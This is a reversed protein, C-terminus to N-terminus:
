DFTIEGDINEWDTVEFEVDGSKENYTVNVLIDIFDNRKIGTMPIAAGSEKDITKIPIKEEHTIDSTVERKGVKYLYLNHLETNDKSSSGYVSSGYVTMYYSKRTGQLRIYNGSNSATFYDESGLDVTLPLYKSSINSSQMYYGTEGMSEIYYRNTGASKLKWVYNNNLRGGTLYSSGAGVYNGNAYLYRRSDTFYIVYLAGDEIGSASNIAKNEVFYEETKAGEYKLGITYNYSGGTSELLYTDFVTAEGVNGSTDLKPIMMEQEFPTIAGASTVVPSVSATGGEDFLDASQQTFKTDFSLGTIYLDSLSSHNRVNIRLRAYTRLLEGNVINKGPTLNIEKKLSLPYPTSSDCINEESATVKLGSTINEGDAESLNGTLGNYNGYNAVAYLLYSRTYDLNTFSVTAETNENSFRPDDSELVTSSAVRNGDLLMVTLRYMKRGDVILEQESVTGNDDLDEVGRTSQVSGKSTINIYLTTDSATHLSEDNSCACTLLIGGFLLLKQLIKTHISM